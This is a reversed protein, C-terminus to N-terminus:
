KLFVISKATLRSMRHRSAAKMYYSMRKREYSFNARSPVVKGKLAAHVAQSIQAFSFSLVVKETVTRSEGAPIM